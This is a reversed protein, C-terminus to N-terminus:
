IILAAGEERSLHGRWGLWGRRSSDKEVIAESNSVVLLVSVVPDALPGIRDFNSLIVDLKAVFTFESYTSVVHVRICSFGEMAADVAEELSGLFLGGGVYLLLKDQDVIQVGSLSGLYGQRCCHARLGRRVDTGADIFHTVRVVHARRVAAVRIIVVHLPITASVVVSHLDLLQFSVM